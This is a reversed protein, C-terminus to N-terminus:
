QSGSVRTSPYMKKIFFMADFVKSWDAKMLTAATPRSLVGQHIWEGDRDISRLPVFAYEFGAKILCEELSGKPVPDIEIKKRGLTQRTGEHTIFGVSFFQDGVERFALHGM